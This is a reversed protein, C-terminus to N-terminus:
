TALPSNDMHKNNHYNFTTNVHMCERCQCQPALTIYIELWATAKNGTLKFRKEVLRSNSIVNRSDTLGLYGVNMNPEIPIGNELYNHVADPVYPNMSHPTRTLPRIKNCPIYIVPQLPAKFQDPYAVALRANLESLRFSMQLAPKVFPAYSSGGEALQTGVITQRQVVTPQKLPVLRPQEESDVMEANATTDNRSEHTLYCRSGGDTTGHWSKFHDEEVDPGSQLPKSDTIRCVIPQLRFTNPNTPDRTWYLLMYYFVWLPIDKTGAFGISRDPPNGSLIM